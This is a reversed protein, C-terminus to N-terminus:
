KFVISTFQACRIRAWLCRRLEALQWVADPLEASARGDLMHARWAREGLCNVQPTRRRYKTATNECGANAAM